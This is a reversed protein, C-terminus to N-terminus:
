ELLFMVHSCLEFQALFSLHTLCFLRQVSTISLKPCQTGCGSKYKRKSGCLCEKHMASGKLPLIANQGAADFASREQTESVLCSGESTMPNNDDGQATTCSSNHCTEGTGVLWFIELDRLVM